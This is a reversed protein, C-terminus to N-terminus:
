PQPRNLCLRTRATDGNPFRNIFVYTSRNVPQATEAKWAFIIHDTIYELAM